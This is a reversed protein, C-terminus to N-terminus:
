YFKFWYQLQDPREMYFEKISNLWALGIMRAYSMTKYSKQYPFNLDLMSFPKLDTLSDFVIGVRQNGKATLERGINKCYDNILHMESETFSDSETSIYVGFVGSDKMRIIEVKFGVDEFVEYSEEQKLIELIENSEQTELIFNYEKTM